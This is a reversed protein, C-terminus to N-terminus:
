LKNSALYHAAIREVVFLFIYNQLIKWLQISQIVSANRVGKDRFSDRPKKILCSITKKYSHWWIVLNFMNNKCRITIYCRTRFSKPSGEKLEVPVNDVFLHATRDLLKKSSSLENWVKIRANNCQNKLSCINKFHFVEVGDNNSIEFELEDWLDDSVM